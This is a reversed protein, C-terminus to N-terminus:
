GPPSAGDLIEQATGTLNRPVKVLMYQETKRMDEGAMHRRVVEVAKDSDSVHFVHDYVEEIERLTNATWKGDYVFVALLSHHVAKWNLAKQAIDGRYLAAHNDASKRVEIVAQPNVNDPFSFDARGCSLIGRISTKGGEDRVHPLGAEVVAREIYGESVVKGILDRVIGEILGSMSNLVHAAEAPECGRVASALRAADRAGIRRDSAGKIGHLRNFKKKSCAGSINVLVPYCFPHRAIWDADIQRLGDTRSLVFDLIASAQERLKGTVVAAAASAWEFDTGCAKWEGHDGVPCGSPSLGRGAMLLAAKDPCSFNEPSVVSFAETSTHLEQLHANAARM